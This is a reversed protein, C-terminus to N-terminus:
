INANEAIAEDASKNNETDYTFHVFKTAIVGLIMLMFPFITLLFRAAEDARMGPEEGSIFGYIRSALLFGLSTFLGSLRNMFGMASSYIGQRRIGYKHYDEDMVKAGIIDMTSIVGSFGLGVLVCCAISFYLNNSFYMPIFAAALVIFAIRWVKVTGHKRVLSSWMVVGLVAVLIVSGMLYTGYSDAINLTYKIFFPVSALVLAMAASYFANAVGAIWFNKSKVMALLAPVIAVKEGVKSIEVEKVGLTMYMIVILSLVGYIIATPTYGIKDTIMPTLALGIVMAFLQCIQRIANTKARVKEEPFLEPFLAGYNANILSDLTGALSYFVFAWAFLMDKSLSAPPSYFLIFFVFFLPTAIFLWPKRRGFRTRTNDSLLGYVPNDIADLFTYFFVITALKDMSLGLKIVYFAAAYARFMNIALSTGFMGIGYRFSSTPKQM